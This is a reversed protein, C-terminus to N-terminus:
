EGAYVRAHQQGIVTPTYASVRQLASQGMANMDRQLIHQLATLLGGSDNPDYLVGSEVSVLESLCGQASTVVPRGFSMALIASGSTQVHKFPLVVADCAAFYTPVENPAIYEFVTRIRSDGEILQALQAKIPENLPRGAIVFRAKPDDIQRFAAIAEEVGKYPRIAGFYLLVKQDPLLGLTARATCRDPVDNYLSTYAPHPIVTIKNAGGWRRRVQQGADNCHVIIAHALRTMMGWCRADLAPHKPEHAGINHVTWVIRYGMARAVTIKLLFLALAIASKAKTARDYHYELWHFHLVQTQGRQTWLWCWSLGDNPDAAYGIGHAALGQELLGLYPNERWWPSRPFMAVHTTM